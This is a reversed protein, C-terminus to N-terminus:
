AGGTAPLLRVSKIAVAWLKTAWAARRAPAGRAHPDIRSRLTHGTLGEFGAQEIRQQTIKNPSGAAAATLGPWPRDPTAHDCALPRHTVLPGM